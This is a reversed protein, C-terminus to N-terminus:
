CVFRLNGALERGAPCIFAAAPAIPPIFYVAFIFSGGSVSYPFNLTREGRM